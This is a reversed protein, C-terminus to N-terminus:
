ITVTEIEEIFQWTTEALSRYFQTEAKAAVRSLLPQSWTLHEARFKTLVQSFTGQAETDSDMRGILEGAFDLQAGIHDIIPSDSEYNPLLDFFRQMSGAATAQFVQEAWISQVPPLHGKPGILLQCYDAALSDIVESPRGNTLEANVEDPFTERGAPSTLVELASADVEKLWLRGLFRCTVSLQQYVKTETPM